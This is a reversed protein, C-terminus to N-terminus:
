RKRVNMQPDWQWTTFPSTETSFQFYYKSSIQPTLKNKTQVQWQQNQTGPVPIPDSPIIATKNADGIFQNLYVKTTGSLPMAHWVLTDLPDVITILQDLYHNDWEDEGSDSDMRIIDHTTITGGSPYSAMLKVLDVKININITRAM